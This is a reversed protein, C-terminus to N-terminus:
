RQGVWNFAWIGLRAKHQKERSAHLLYNPIWTVELTEVVTSFPSWNSVSSPLLLVTTSINTFQKSLKPVLRLTTRCHARTALGECGKNDGIIHSRGRASSEWAASVFESPGSQWHSHLKRSILFISPATYWKVGAFSAQVPWSLLISYNVKM